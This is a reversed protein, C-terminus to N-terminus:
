LKELRAEVTRTDFAPMRTDPFHPTTTAPV